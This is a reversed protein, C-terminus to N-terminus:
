IVFKRLYEISSKFSDKPFEENLKNIVNKIPEKLRMYDLAEIKRLIKKCVFDDIAETKDGGCAVYYPVYDNLQMSMRNGFSIKLNTFLINNIKEITRELEEKESLSFSNKADKFLNLFDTNSIHIPKVKESRFKDAKKNLNIIMSRDYVKDSIAFTSEDNNATGLFYVNKGIKLKGDKLKKPDSAWVDNTVEIVRQSEDNYELLSLFEAFYYEVRAINMEDLIIIYIKDDFNSEYLEELLLTENFKKTFENFYGVLDSREKWMPQIAIPDIPNGVFREFALVISTKGTGSMGQLIMTKSVGLNSIFSIIDKESYYLPEKESACFSRFQTAFEKLSSVKDYKIEEREKEDQLKLKSFRYIEEKEAEKSKANKLYSDRSYIFREEKKNSFLFYILCLSVAIIVLIAIFLFVLPSDFNFGTGNRIIESVLLAIFSISLALAIMLFVIITKDLKRDSDM